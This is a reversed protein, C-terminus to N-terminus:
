VFNNRVVMQEEIFDWEEEIIILANALNMDYHKVLFAALQHSFTPM